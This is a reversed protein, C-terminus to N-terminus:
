DVITIKITESDSDTSINCFYIGPSMNSADYIFNHTGAQQYENKMVETTNGLLDMIRISVDSNKALQYRFTTKSLVPNPYNILSLHSGDAYDDIGVFWPIIHTYYVDQGGTLTNAWALHAGDNDSVMHFYDGMKNQNPYGFQPNFAESLRENASFTVGNDISYSYYLESMFMNTGPSNRTDLWVVDIRGNPAVSMTGFWQYKNGYPDDNVRVPPEWTAGGNTSRAFMVDGPDGNDRDVSALVYVNGRGSGNSRDVDIYSQGLLGAPNIPTWGTLSGDLDVYVSFDWGTTGSPDQATTSKTVVLGTNSAAGVTYMEGDPGTTLTGWYPNGPIGDCDEYSDGGDISRTYAGPFCISFSSNWFAYINGDGMGGSKDITMWQKDGGQAYTGEDWIFSENDTRYVDCWYDNNDNKTLSNYYFNGDSDVDLVPDSRFIGQDIPDPSTWTEGGDDTYAYGAQRFNNSVDDFQRWGIVIRDPNTWDVAISPENGADFLINNGDEDINVQVTTYNSGSFGYPPTTIRNEKLIPIYPDDIQEQYMYRKDLKTEQGSSNLSSFIFISTIVAIITPVSLKM